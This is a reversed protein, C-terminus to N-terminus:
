RREQGNRSHKAGRCRPAHISVVFAVFNRESSVSREGAVPLTSQFQNTMANLGHTWIAESGPLPSRPNFSPELGLIGVLMRRQKAGRCRPAHISVLCIGRPGTRASRKAGRCRPAHISVSRDLASCRRWCAESGPLPSRPNFCSSQHIRATRSSAESGPLPSRPNFCMQLGSMSRVLGSREGAVPLTSQFECIIVDVYQVRLAESGPLPSRPNFSQLGAHWGHSGHAESGPLPSRPNFRDDPVGM